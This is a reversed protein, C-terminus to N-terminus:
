QTERKLQGSAPLRLSFPRRESLRFGRPLHQRQFDAELSDGSGGRIKPLPFGTGMVQKRSERHKGTIQAGVQVRSRQRVRHPVAYGQVTIMFVYFPKHTLDYGVQQMAGIYM